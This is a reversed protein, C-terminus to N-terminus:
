PDNAQCKMLFSYKGLSLEISCNHKICFELLLVNETGDIRSYKLEDNVVHYSNSDDKSEVDGWMTYPNYNFTAYKIVKKELNM